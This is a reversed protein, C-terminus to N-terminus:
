DHAHLCFLRKYELYLGSCIAFTVQLFGSFSLKWFENDELPYSSITVLFCPYSDILFFKWLGYFARLLYFCSVFQLLWYFPQIIINIFDRVCDLLFFLFFFFFFSFILPSSWSIQSGVSTGALSFLPPPPIPSCSLFHHILDLFNELHSPSLNKFQFPEILVCCLPHLCISVM